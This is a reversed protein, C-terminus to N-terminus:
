RIRKGNQLAGKFLPNNVLKDMNRIIESRNYSKIIRTFLPHKAGSMARMMNWVLYPPYDVSIMTGVNDASSVTMFRYINTPGFSKMRIPGDTSLIRAILSTSIEEDKLYELVADIREQFKTAPELGRIKRDIKNLLVPYGNSEVKGLLSAYYWGYLLKVQKVEEEDLQYIRELVNAIAMTYFEVVFAASDPSLWEDSDHYSACLFARVVSSVCRPSDTVKVSRTDRDISLSSNLNVWVTKLSDINLSPVHKGDVVIDELTLLEPVDLNKKTLFSYYYFAGLKDQSVINNFMNNIPSNVTPRVQKLQYVYESQDVDTIGSKLTLFKVANATLQSVNYVSAAPTDNIFKKM